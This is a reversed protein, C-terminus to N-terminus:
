DTLSKVCDRGAHKARYLAVDAQRVLDAPVSRKSPVLSVVGLSVTVISHAAEAHPIRLSRIDDLIRLAVHMADDGSSNPLLVAFEEGGYRAVLDPARRAAQTLARAIANLCDDGALHGYQDNFHKFHDVDLLILAVSGGFRQARNWEKELIQDFHRRNAIATLSDTNSLIELKSNSEELARTREEVLSELEHYRQQLGKIPYVEGEGVRLYPISIGSHVVKWVEGERRFALVLRANERSLIHESVPLHIHFLSTVIAVDDSIDQMVLDLLEIRIRGTVQSFDLRTIKVWEDRDKVLFDGGGTYGSFDDSFRATLRDDRSAYMEIYEDFLARILLQRESRM